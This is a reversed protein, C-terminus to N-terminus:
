NLENYYFEELKTRSAIFYKELRQDFQKGMGDEIINYAAEFSMSEKYCRKSVLADYVDAIAMIRAEIPIEESKLGKPYGTGDVREHHYHAVNEAIEAFYDDDINQLLNRVIAAGKEAHTKMIAFEEDTFKGPKRLIDDDVAIKGLDHMPAAKILADCFEDSLGLENEEKIASVLIEVIKSTRKIHGGTSNDRNEVMDAMGLVLRNQMEEIHKVNKAVERKLDDNYQTLLDKYKQEDTYDTITFRICIAKLKRYLLGVEIKYIYDGKKYYFDQNTNSKRASNIWEDLKVYLENEDVPLERDVKLEKMQPFWEAALANCGLYKGNQTFLLCGMEGANLIADIVTGDVDYLSLRQLIVLIVVQAFVYSVSTLQIAAPLFRQIFYVAVTIFELMFILSINKVSAEKRRTYGIWLVAFTILTYIIILAYFCTHAPGYEKEIISINDWSTLNASKYLWHLKNDMLVIAYLLFGPIVAIVRWLKTIQIRCLSLTCFLICVPLFCGGVYSIANALIAMELTTALSRYLAGMNSLTALIMIYGYMVSVNRNNMFFFSILCIVSVLFTLEYYVVM